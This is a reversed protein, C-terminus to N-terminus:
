NNSFRMSCTSKRRSVSWLLLINYKELFPGEDMCVTWAHLCTYVIPRHLYLGPLHERPEREYRRCASLPLSIARGMFLVQSWSCPGLLSIGIMMFITHRKDGNPFISLPDLGISLIVWIFRLKTSHWFWYKKECYMTSTKLLNASIDNM